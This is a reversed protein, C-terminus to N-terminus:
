DLSGFIAILDLLIRDEIEHNEFDIPNFEKMPIEISLKKSTASYIVLFKDNKSNHKAFIEFFISKKRCTKFILRWNWWCVVMKVDVILTVLSLM